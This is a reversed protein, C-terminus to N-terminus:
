VQLVSTPPVFGLPVRRVNSAIGMARELERVQDMIGPHAAPLQTRDFDDEADTKERGCRRRLVPCEDTAIKPITERAARVPELGHYLDDM